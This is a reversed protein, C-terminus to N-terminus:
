WWGREDAIRVLAEAVGRAEHAQVAIYKWRPLRYM